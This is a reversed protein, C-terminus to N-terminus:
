FFDVFIIHSFGYHAKVFCNYIWVPGSFNEMPLHGPPLRMIMKGM